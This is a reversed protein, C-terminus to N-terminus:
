IYTITRTTTFTYGDACLDDKTTEFAVNTFVGACDDSFRQNFTRFSYAGAYLGADALSAIINELTEIGASQVEVENGRDETLRDAYFLTFNYTILSSDAETTHEGQLWAFAGYRVSPHANLRFIDSRVITNVSPQSAAASEIARITQYLNM